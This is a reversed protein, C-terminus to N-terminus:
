GHEEAFPKGHSPMASWEISSQSGGVGLMNLPGFSMHDPSEIDWAALQCAFRRAARHLEETWEPEVM